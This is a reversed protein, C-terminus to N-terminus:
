RTHHETLYPPRSAEGSRAPNALQRRAPVASSGTQFRGSQVDELEIRERQEPELTGRVTRDMPHYALAAGISLVVGAVAAAFAFSKM